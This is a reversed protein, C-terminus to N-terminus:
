VLSKMNPTIYSITNYKKKDYSKTVKPWLDCGLDFIQLIFKPEWGGHPLRSLIGEWRGGPLQLLWVLLHGTFMETNPSVTAISNDPLSPYQELVTYGTCLYRLPVFWYRNACREPVMETGYVPVTNRYLRYLYPIFVTGVPITNTDNDLVSYLGSLFVTSDLVVHYQITDYKYWRGNCGSLFVTSSLIQIM